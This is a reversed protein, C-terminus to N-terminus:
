SPVGFEGTLAVWDLPLNRDDLFFDVHPKGPSQWVEDFLGWLGQQVLFRRMESFRGWQESVRPPVTGHKYFVAVENPEANGPPTPTCRASHLVLSHGANKLARLGAPVGPRLRPTGTTEIISGDYDVGFSFSV